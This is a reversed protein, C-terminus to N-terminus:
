DVASIDVKTQSNLSTAPGARSNRSIRAVHAVALRQHDITAAPYTHFPRMDTHVVSVLKEWSVAAHICHMDGTTESRNVPSVADSTITTLEKRTAKREPTPSSISGSSSSSARLSDSVSDKPMSIFVAQSAIGRSGRLIETADAPGDEVSTAPASESSGSPSTKESKESGDLGSIGVGGSPASCSALARYASSHQQDNITVTGENEDTHRERKPSDRHKADHSPGHTIHSTDARRSAHTEARVPAEPGRNCSHDTLAASSVPLPLSGHSHLNQGVPRVPRQQERSRVEHTGSLSTSVSTTTVATSPATGRTAMFRGIYGSQSNQSDSRRHSTGASRTSGSESALTGQSGVSRLSSKSSKGRIQPTPTLPSPDELRNLSDPISPARSAQALVGALSSSARSVSSTPTMSTATMPLSTRNRAVNLGALPSGSPGSFSAPRPSASVTATAVPSPVFM